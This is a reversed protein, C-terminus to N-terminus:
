SGDPLRAAAPASKTERDLLSRYEEVVMYKDARMTTATASAFYDEFAFETRTQRLLGASLFEASPEGTRKTAAGAERSLTEISSALSTAAAPADAGYRVARLSMLRGAQDFQFWVSEAGLASADRPLSGPKIKSCDLDSDFIPAAPKACTIGRSSAWAEIDARTTKDLEFGLAPRAAAKGQGRRAVARHQRAEERQAPDAKAAKDFGLPCAGQGAQKGGPPGFMLALLPRGPKTHAFGMLGILAVTLGLGM